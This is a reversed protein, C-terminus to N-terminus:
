KHTKLETINKAVWSADQRWGGNRQTGRGTASIAGVGMRTKYGSVTQMLLTKLLQRQVQSLSSSGCRHQGQRPLSFRDLLRRLRALKYGAVSPALMDPDLTYCICYFNPRNRHSTHNSDNKRARARTEKLIVGKLGPGFAM